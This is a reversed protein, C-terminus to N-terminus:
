RSTPRRAFRSRSEPIAFAVLADGLEEGVTEHFLYHGGAAIVVYQRPAGDVDDVRYTMPTAQGGFPLRGRWLEEGTRLDFARLYDRGVAAGIFILGSRTVLPAGYSPVGVGIDFPMPVLDRVTGFPREWLIEGAELDVATLRGWPPPNCPIGLPSLIVEKVLGFPTGDQPSKFPTYQDPRHADFEARPVLRTVESAIDNTNVVLLKREPDVAVGAWSVGGTTAPYLLSGELSPPTYIGENRIRQHAKRCARRDFPTLGWAQEPSFSLPVLPPPKVPFPQTPSLREGPPAGQPVPREEVGFIPEGTERHLVFLLGMKTAQILAPVVRGDRTLDVLTPQAPVDYDWLDHHVTQFRWVVEGTSARLAVVSSGYYDMDSGAGRYFDPAPNGTPVFLLNREPDSSMPAWVNPTGLAYGDASTPRNAYDFGPPALDWAWRLAGTRADFARVVGSPADTRQNDAVLSGVVALDGILEPPSTVGYEGRWREPGAGPALDIRGSEGFGSCPEGTAADLAILFADRTATFIRRACRDAAPRAVDRWAAVGRSALFGYRGSRDLGPDYTWHEAGTAPDLAIVRNFPTSFYLVGDVLIPTAQFSSIGITDDARPVDGHRYTWAIELQGVNDATINELASYRLAEENGGYVPWETAQRLRPTETPNPQAEPPRDCGM